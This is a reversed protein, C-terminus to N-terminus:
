SDGDSDQQGTVEPLVKRWDIFLECVGKSVGLVFEVNGFSVGISCSLWQAGLVPHCAERTLKANM